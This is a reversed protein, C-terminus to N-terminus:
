SRGYRFWVLYLGGGMGLLLGLMVFVRLDLWESVLWGIGGWFVVGATILSFAAWADSEGQRGRNDPPDASM